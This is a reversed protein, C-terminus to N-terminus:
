CMIFLDRDCQSALYRAGVGVKVEVVNEFSFKQFEGNRRFFGDVVKQNFVSLGKLDM